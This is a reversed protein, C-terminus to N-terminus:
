YAQTLGNTPSEEIYSLPVPTFGLTGHNIPFSTPMTHTAAAYACATAAKSASVAFEGAGGPSESTPMVFVQVDPPTNWQRTYFYNDWSAELFMGDLLHLSSTLALAIGDNIGGIVMAELGRPNIALGPDVAFVAKTVRPGGVASLPGTVPNVIQRNVTAPTCDIEFLAASVGKYEKHFAIGQATGPAMTRGWNGAEAVKDLVARSRDDKLFERRFEYRDKGMAAALQDVVLEISTCVDPSYVNRMSGTPFTNYNFIENLAQTTVGFNYPVNATTMFVTQAFGLFNGGPLTTAYHTIIEGLGQTYDTAVSTHRQEFTLVEGATYTARVRSTCM